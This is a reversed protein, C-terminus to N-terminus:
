AGRVLDHAILLEVGSAEMEATIEMVTEASRSLRSLDPVVVHDVGGARIRAMLRDREPALACRNGSVGIDKFVATVNGGITAVLTKCREIRRGSTSAGAQQTLPSRDYIIYNKAM